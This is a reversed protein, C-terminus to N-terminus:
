SADRMGDRCPLCVWRGDWRTIHRVQVTRVCESCLRTEEAPAPRAAFLGGLEDPLPPEDDVLEGDLIEGEERERGRASTVPPQSAIIEEIPEETTGGGIPPGSAWGLGSGEPGGTSARSAGRNSGKLGGQQVHGRTESPHAQHGGTGSAWGLPPGDVNVGYRAHSRESPGALHTLAGVDLLQRIVKQVERFATAQAKESDLQYGLLTATAERGRFYVRAPTGTKPDPQDLTQHAMGVLLRFPRHALHAWNDFVASVNQAGM